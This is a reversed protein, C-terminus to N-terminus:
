GRMRSVNECQKPHALTSSLHPSAFVRHAPIAEGDKAIVIGEAQLIGGLGGCTGEGGDPRQESRGKETLGAGWEGKGARDVGLCGSSRGACLCAGWISPSHISTNLSGQRRGRSPFVWQNANLDRLM